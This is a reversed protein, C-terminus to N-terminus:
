SLFLPSLEITLVSQGFEDLPNLEAVPNSLNLVGGSCADGVKSLIEENKLYKTKQDAHFADTSSFSM